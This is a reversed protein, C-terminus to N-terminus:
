WLNKEVRSLVNKLHNEGEQLLNHCQKKMDDVFNKDKINKLNILVNYIGGRLGSFGMQAGVGVDTISNPNGHVAVSEAIKIVELSLQATKLPVNVASKLGTQMADERYSKEEPTNGPLRM